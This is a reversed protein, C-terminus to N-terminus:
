MGAVDSGRCRRAHPRTREDERGRHARRRPRRAEGHHPEERLGPPAGVGAIRRAHDGHIRQLKGRGPCVIREGSPLVFASGDRAVLLRGRPREASAIAQELLEAALRPEFFEGGWPWTRARPDGGPPWGAAALVARAGELDGDLVHLHAACLDLTWAHYRSKPSLRTRALDFDHAAAERDGMRALVAGRFALLHVERPVDSLDRLATIALDLAHKAESWAGLMAYAVGLFGVSWAEYRRTGCERLTRAAEELTRVAEDRPGYAIQHTGLGSLAFGEGRLDGHRRALALAERLDREGAEAERTLEGRARGLQTLWLALERPDSGARCVDVYAAVAADVETTVGIESGFFEHCAHSSVPSARSRSARSRRIAHSVRERPPAITPM